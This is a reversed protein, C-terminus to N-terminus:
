VEEEPSGGADSQVAYPDERAKGKATESLTGVAVPRASANDRTSGRRSLLRPTGIFSSNKSGSASSPVSPPVSASGRRDRESFWREGGRSRDASVAERNSSTTAMPVYSPKGPIQGHSSPEKRPHPHYFNHAHGGNNSRQRQPISFQHAMNDFTLAEPHRSSSPSPPNTALAGLTVSAPRPARVTMNPSAGTPHTPTSTAPSRAICSRSRPQAHM